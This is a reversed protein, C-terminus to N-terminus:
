CVTENKRRNYQELYIVLISIDAPSIGSIRSAQGITEPRITALKQRAERSIAQISEFDLTGPIIRSEYAKSRAVQDWQKKIYGEYKIMIEVQSRIEPDLEPLDWVPRLHEYCFGPRKLLDYGSSGAKIEGAPYDVGSFLNLLSASVRNDKLSEIMQEIQRRKNQTQQQREESVLGITYGKETLRLDANDYRLLLRHEARSTMIRYPEQTGKTVLDDILVGIYAEDRSLVFSDRQQVFRAANIGAIIGQAAAEEYGSSGNLQGAAFLGYYEKFALGLNLQTSDLCDYEIAYGYRIVKVQELGPITKLMALQVDIPLSTSMGQVYMENTESGEPEVFVQHSEKDPFNVIKVEISPCYRPGTGEIDGTYLPARHLNDRILQHTYSSTHSLWCPLQSRMTIPSLFSFNYLSEDGPQETMKGFNVSRRDIRAPTGTKFRRLRIGASSLAESLPGAARNGNPGGDYHTNGIVIRGRLYTGTALVVARCFLEEGFETIVGRIAAGDWLLDNAMTQRIELLPETALSQRMHVQYRFKDEQGRLAHVAPGKATNLMRMQISAKDAVLAMEGGLADIERVLQGKAPGGISPNCPMMAINDYNLTLMLTRCGMRAAALAAECGAHGAGIVIVDYHM